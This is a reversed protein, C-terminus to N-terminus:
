LKFNVISLKKRWGRCSAGLLLQVHRIPGMRTDALPELRILTRPKRWQRRQALACHALPGLLFRGDPRAKLAVAVSNQM